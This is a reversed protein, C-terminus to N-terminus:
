LFQGLGPISGVLEDIESEGVKEKAVSILESAVQKSQDMDLGANNLEGLAAMAGGMGGGLMGGLGGLLGGGSSGGDDILEKAGPLAELLKSMVDGSGEKNLFGLIIKVGTRALSEDIGVREAIQSILEDM